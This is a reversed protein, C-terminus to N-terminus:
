DLSFRRYAEPLVFQEAKIESADFSQLIRKRGNSRWEMIPLGKSYVNGDFYVQDSLMCPTQYEVPTQQLTKVQNAVMASQYAHLMEGAAKLMGPVYQIHTCMEQISEDKLEVRYDHVTKGGIRPADELARDTTLLKKSLVPSEVAASTIVLISKDFHSVSYIKGVEDDYVIYGSDDSLDDIRLYRDTVQIRSIYPEVGPEEEKYLLEYGAGWSPLSAAFLSALLLTRIM